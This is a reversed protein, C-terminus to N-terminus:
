ETEATVSEKFAQIKQIPLVSKMYSMYLTRVITNIHFSLIMKNIAWRISPGIVFTSQPWNLMCLNRLRSVVLSWPSWLILSYENCNQCMHHSDNM